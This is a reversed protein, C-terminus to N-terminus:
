LLQTIQHGMCFRIPYISKILAKQPSGAHIFVLLHEPDPFIEFLFASHPHCYQMQLFCRNRLFTSYRQSKKVAYVQPVPCHQLRCCFAGFPLMETGTGKCKRCIRHRNLLTCRQAVEICIGMFKCQQLRATHLSYETRRKRRETLQVARCKAPYNQLVQEPCFLHEAATIEPKACLRGPANVCQAFKAGFHSKRHM